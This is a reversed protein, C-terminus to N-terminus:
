ETYGLMALVEKEERTLELNVVALQTEVQFHTGWSKCEKVFTRFFAIQQESDAQALTAGAFEFDVEKMMGLRM